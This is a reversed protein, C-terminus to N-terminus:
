PAVGIRLIIPAVPLSPGLSKCASPAVGQGLNAPDHPWGLPAVQLSRLNKGVDAGTAAPLLRHGVPLEGHHVHLFNDAAPRRPVAVSPDPTLGADVALRDSAVRGRRCAEAEGLPAVDGLVIDVGDRLDDLRAWRRCGTILPALHRAVAVADLLPKSPVGLLPREAQGLHVRQENTIVVQLRAVVGETAERHGLERPSLLRGGHADLVRRRSLFRLDVEALHPEHEIRLGAPLAAEPHEDHREREAPQLEDPRRETLGGLGHALTEVAGPLEEAGHRRADDRVVGLRHDPAGVREVGPEDVGEEVVHLSTAQEYIRGANARGLVLRADLILYGVDALAPEVALRERREVIGARAGLAPRALDGARTCPVM